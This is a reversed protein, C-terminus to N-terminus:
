PAPRWTANPQAAGSQMTAYLTDRKTGIITTPTGGVNVNLDTFGWGGPSNMKIITGTYSTAATTGNNGDGIYVVLDGVQPM